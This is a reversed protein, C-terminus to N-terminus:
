EDRSLVQRFWLKAVAWERKVTTPSIELLGAIEDVTLGGFFRLEVIQAQRADLTELEQLAEDVATVDIQRRDYFELILDTPADGGRKSRKRAVAHNILTQRMLRACIGLFHARNVWGVRRQGLLRLYAEHVLATRQLTHGLRERRLYNGALVRLEEYVLPMLEELTKMGEIEGHGEDRQRPPPDPVPPSEGDKM